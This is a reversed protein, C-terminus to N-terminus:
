NNQLEYYQEKEIWIGELVPLRCINSVSAVSM